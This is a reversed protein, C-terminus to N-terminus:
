IEFKDLIRTEKKGTIEAIVHVYNRLGSEEIRPKLLQDIQFIGAPNSMTIKVTIPKEQGEQISVKEISLASVSHIDIKGAEFPIRARGKEMDLADAVHVIGAELTLPKHPEEHSVIAHLVESLIITREEESYIGQLYKEIFESALLAGFMEHNDRIVTMGLDHLISGLVVVVEADENKMSYDKVISPTVKKDVLIRLMKLAMNAVIKVHTPGHDTYGMRDIAMVNSCRWLTQLKKDKKVEDIVHRLKRNDGFPINFVFAAM